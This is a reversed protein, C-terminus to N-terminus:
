NQGGRSGVHARSAHRGASRVLCHAPHQQVQLQVYQRLLQLERPRVGAPTSRQPRRVLYRHQERLEDAERGVACFLGAPACLAASGRDSPRCTRASREPRQRFVRACLRFAAPLGLRSKYTLLQSNRGHTPRRFCCGQVAPASYPFRQVIASRADSQSRAQWFEGVVL